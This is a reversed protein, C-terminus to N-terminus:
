REHRSSKLELSAKGSKSSYLAAAKLKLLCAEVDSKFVKLRSTLQHEISTEFRFLNLQHKM